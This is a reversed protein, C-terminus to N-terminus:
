DGVAVWLRGKHTDGTRGNWQTLGYLVCVYAGGVTTAVSAVVTAKRAVWDRFNTYSTEAWKEKQVNFNDVLEADKYQEKASTTLAAVM